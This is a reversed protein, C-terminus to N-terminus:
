NIANISEMPVILPTYGSTSVSMNVGTRVVIAGPLDRSLYIGSHEHLKPLSYKKQYSGDPAFRYLTDMSIAWFSGDTGAPALGFIPETDTWQKFNFYRTVSKQWLPTVQTDCIRLIGGHTSSLHALGVSVLVCAKNQPDAIAGTVPDSAINLLAEPSTDSQGEINTVAGTALDIKQLGGGWEGRNYGLYVSGGVTPATSVQVGRRLEGQLPVHNWSKHDAALGYFGHQFIVIPSGYNVLLTVLRDQASPVPPGVDEFKETGSHLSSVVLGGAGNLCLVWLETGSREM